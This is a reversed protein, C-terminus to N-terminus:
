SISICIQIFYLKLVVAFIILLFIYIFNRLFNLFSYDAKFTAKIEISLSQTRGPRRLHLKGPLTSSLFSTASVLTSLLAELADVSLLKGKILNFATCSSVLSTRFTTVGSETKAGSPYVLSTEGWLWMCGFMEFM